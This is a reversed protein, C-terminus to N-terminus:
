PLPELPRPRLPYHQREFALVMASTGSGWRSVSKMAETFPVDLLHVRSSDPVMVAGTFPTPISPVFV